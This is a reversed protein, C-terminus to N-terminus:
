FTRLNEGGLSSIAAVRFSTCLNVCGFLQWCRRCAELSLREHFINSPLCGVKRWGCIERIRHGIKVLNESESDEAHIFCYYSLKSLRSKWESTDNSLMQFLILCNRFSSLIHHLRASWNKPPQTGRNTRGSKWSRTVNRLRRKRYLVRCRVIKTIQRLVLRRLASLRM